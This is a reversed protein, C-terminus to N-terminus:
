IKNLLEGMIKTWNKEKHVFACGEAAISETEEPHDLYYELKDAM